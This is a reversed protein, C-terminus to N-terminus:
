LLEIRRAERELEFVLVLGSSQATVVLRYRKREEMSATSPVTIDYVGSGREVAALSGEVTDGDEDELVATVTAGTVTAGTTALTLTVAVNTSSGVGFFDEGVPM